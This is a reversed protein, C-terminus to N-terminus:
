EDGKEKLVADIREIAVHAPGGYVEYYEFAAKDLRLADLAAVCRHEWNGAEIALSDSLAVLRDARDREAALDTQLQEICDAAKDQLTPWEQATIHERLRNVLDDTM